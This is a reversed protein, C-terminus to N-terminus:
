NLRKAQQVRDNKRIQLIHRLVRTAPATPSIREPQWQAASYVRGHNIEHFPLMEPTHKLCPLIRRVSEKAYVGVTYGTTCWSSPLPAIKKPITLTSPNPPNISNRMAKTAAIRMQTPKRVRRAPAFQTVTLANDTIAVGIASMPNPVTRACSKVM